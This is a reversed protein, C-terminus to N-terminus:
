SLLAHLDSIYSYNISKTKTVPDHCIERDKGALVRDKIAINYIEKRGVQVKTVILKKM